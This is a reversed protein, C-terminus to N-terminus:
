LIDEVVFSNINISVSVGSNEGIKLLSKVFQQKTSDHDIGHMFHKDIKVYDPQLESWLRLSSFGEGLDDMAIEFGMQRCQKAVNVLLPYDFCPLHETLEIVIQNPRLKLASLYDICADIDVESRVFASPTFNLFLKGEVRFGSFSELVVQRALHEAEYSLGLGDAENFIRMPLHWHSEHPGRILGEHGLIRHDFVDLIPQFVASLKKKHILSLFEPRGADKRLSEYQSQIDLPDGWSSYQSTNTPAGM